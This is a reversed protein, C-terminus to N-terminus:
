SQLDRMFARYKDPDIEERDLGMIHPSKEILSNFDRIKGYFLKVEDYSWGIMWTSKGTEPDVPGSGEEDDDRSVYVTDYFNLDYFKVTGVWEVKDKYFYEIRDGIVPKTKM